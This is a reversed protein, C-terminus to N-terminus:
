HAPVRIRPSSRQHHCSISKYSSLKPGNQPVNGCENPFFSSLWLYTDPIDAPRVCSISLYTIATVVVEAGCQRNLLCRSNCMFHPM